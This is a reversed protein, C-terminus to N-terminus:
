TDYITIPCTDDFDILYAIVDQKRPYQTKEQGREELLIDNLVSEDTEGRSGDPHAFSILPAASLLFTLAAEM